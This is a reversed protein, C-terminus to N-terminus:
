WTQDIPKSRLRAITEKEARCCAVPPLGRSLQMVTKAKTFLAPQSQAVTKVHKCLHTSTTKGCSEV